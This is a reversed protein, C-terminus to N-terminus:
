LWLRWRKVFDVIELLFFFFFAQSLCLPLVFLTSFNYRTLFGRWHRQITVIAERHKRAKEYICSLKSNVKMAFVHRRAHLGRFIKQIRIAMLDVLKLSTLSTSM